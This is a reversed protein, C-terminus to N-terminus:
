NPVPDDVSGHLPHVIANGSVRSDPRTKEIGGGV